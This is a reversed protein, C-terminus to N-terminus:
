MGRGESLIGRVLRRMEDRDDLGHKRFDVYSFGRLFVPLRPRKEATPLLVPILQLPRGEDERYEVYRQLLAYYEQKQWRGMWHPGVIVLASPVEDLIEEMGPVFQDGALVGEEDIWAAIGQHELKGLLKRVEPKDKSNHCLFTHYQQLEFRKKVVTAREQREREENSAAGLEDVEKDAQMTEDVLDDLPIRRGCDGCIVATEGRAQRRAVLGSPIVYQDEPCMYIRERVVTGELALRELQQNVYRLFLLEVNKDTDGDFFVTLRGRADNYKDCYEVAFGCIYGQVATFEAANKFLEPNTFGPAHVLSVALTAYIASVPGDFQFAVALTREGPYNPLDRKLESPFVLMEGKGTPQRYAIGRGVAEQITALLMSPEMARDEIRLTDDMKFDADLAKKEPIHGLGDPEDRAAFAMWACYNDLMEPQLLVLDAFSLRRVLGSAQLLGLCTDFAAEADEDDPNEAQYEALLDDRSSLVRGAEKQEILFRKIRAFVQPTTVFPLEDWQIADQIAKSLEDIGDGLKASTEIYGAFGLRKVVERIRKKSVAPAGRDSRAAVLLKITPFGSTAQDVARAWYDVGAFPYTESRADFVVVAVAVDHLHLRHILRYGPQGAFDWLLTERRQQTDPTGSVECKDFSWVHRGHSSETPKFDQGTLVLGLGTKGVGTDGVLVAKANTYQTTLPRRGTRRLSDFDVRWIYIVRDREGRTALFPQNPHFAIGRIAKNTDVPITVISEWDTCDWIGVAKDSSNAALYRGDHSLAVGLVAGTLVEIVRIQRGSATDWVRLTADASGSILTRNDPLWCLDILHNSHGFLEHHKEGTTRDWLRIAHDFHASAVTQGDPSWTVKGCYTDSPLLRQQGRPLTLLIVGGYIGMALTHGDPSWAVNLCSSRLRITGSCRAHVVDWITVPAAISALAIARGHSAWAADYVQDPSFGIQRRTSGDEHVEFPVTKERLEPGITQLLKANWPDWLRATEDQSASALLRGDPSWAIRFIDGTHGRLTHLLELGPPYEEVMPEKKKGRGKAPM